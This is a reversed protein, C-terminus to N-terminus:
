TGLFRVLCVPWKSFKGLFSLYLWLSVPSEAFVETRVHKRLISLPQAGLRYRRKETEEAIKADDLAMQLKVVQELADVWSPRDFPEPAEQILLSAKHITPDSKALEPM